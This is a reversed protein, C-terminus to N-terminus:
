KCCLECPWCYLNKRQKAVNPLIHFNVCLLRIKFWFYTQFIRIKLLFNYFFVTSYARFNKLGLKFFGKQYCQVVQTKDCSSNKLKTVIRTKSIWWLKLRQTKDYHSNKFKTLIHAKDCQTKLNKKRVNQTKSDKKECNSNQWLKLQTM